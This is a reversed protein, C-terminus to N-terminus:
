GVIIKGEPYRITPNKKIGKSSIAMLITLAGVRGMFMFIM